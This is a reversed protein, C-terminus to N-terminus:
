LKAGIEAGTWMGIGAGTCMGVGEGTCMGVGGTECGTGTAGAWVGVM